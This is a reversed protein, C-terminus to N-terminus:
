QSEGTQDLARQITVKQAHLFERSGQSSRAKVILIHENLGVVPMDKVVAAIELTTIRLVRQVVDRTSFLQQLVDVLQDSVRRVPLLTGQDDGVVFVAAEEVM